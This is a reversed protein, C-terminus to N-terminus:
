VPCSFRPFETPAGSEESPSPKLQGRNKAWQEASLGRLVVPRPPHMRTPRGPLNVQVLSFFLVAGLFGFHGLISLVLAALARHADRRKRRPAITILAM